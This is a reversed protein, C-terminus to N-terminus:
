GTSPPFDHTVPVPPNTGRPGYWVVIQDTDGFAISAPDGVLQGNVVGLLQNTENTCYTAVCSKDLRVGWQTFLQGLTYVPPDEGAADEVEVQMRVVGDDAPTNLPSSGGGPTVGIGAPVDVVFDNIFVDVHAHTTVVEADEPLERLGAARIQAGPDEPLPFSPAGNPATAPPADPDNVDVADTGPSSDGCAGAGLALVGVGVVVALARRTRRVPRPASWGASRVM